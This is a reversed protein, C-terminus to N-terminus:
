NGICLPENSFTVDENSLNSSLLGTSGGSAPFNITTYPAELGHIETEVLGLITELDTGFCSEFEGVHPASILIKRFTEKDLEPVFKKYGFSVYTGMNSYIGAFYAVFKEFDSAEVGARMAGAKLRNFSQGHFYFMGLSFVVPGEFSNQQLVCLVGEWAARLFHYTYEKEDQSLLKWSVDFDRPMVPSNVSIIHNKRDVAPCNTKTNM